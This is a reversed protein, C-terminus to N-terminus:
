VCALEAVLERAPECANDFAWQLEDVSMPTVNDNASLKIHPNNISALWKDTDLVRM